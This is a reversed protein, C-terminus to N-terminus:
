HIFRKGFFVINWNWWFPSWFFIGPAFCRSNFPALMHMVLRHSRRSGSIRPVKVCVAVLRKEVQDVHPRNQSSM